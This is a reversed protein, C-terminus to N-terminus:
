ARRRSFRGIRGPFRLGQLPAGFKRLTTVALRPASRCAPSCRRLCARDACSIFHAAQAHHVSNARADLMSRRSVCSRDDAPMGLVPQPLPRL